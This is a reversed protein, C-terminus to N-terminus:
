ESSGRSGDGFRGGAFEGSFAEEVKVDLYM